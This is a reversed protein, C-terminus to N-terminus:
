FLDKNKQWEEEIFVEVGSLRLLPELKQGGRYPRRKRPNADMDILDIKSGTLIFGVDPVYLQKANGLDDYLHLQVSAYQRRERFADIDLRKVLELQSRLMEINAYRAALVSDMGSGHEYKQKTVVVTDELQSELLYLIQAKSRIHSDFLRKRWYRVESVQEYLQPYLLHKSTKPIGALTKADQSVQTLESLRDKIQPLLRHDSVVYLAKSYENYIPKGDIWQSDPYHLRHALPTGDSEQYFWLSSVGPVATEKGCLCEWMLATMLRQFHAYKRRIENSNREKLDIM